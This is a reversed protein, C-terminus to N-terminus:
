AIFIQFIFATYKVKLFRDKLGLYIAKCVEPIFKSLTSKHIRFMYQLDAYNAGTSLYRITAALKIKAPISDRLITNQKTIDVEIFSLLEDFIEPTMRLFKKYDAEEELRLENVLTNYIGLKERRLLWPKVWTSRKKRFKRQKRKRLIAIILVAAACEVDSDM